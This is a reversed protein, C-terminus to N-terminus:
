NKPRALVRLGRCFRTRPRARTRNSSSLVLLRPHVVILCAEFPQTRGTLPISTRITAISFRSTSTEIHHFGNELPRREKSAITGM